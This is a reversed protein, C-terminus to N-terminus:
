HGSMSTLSHHLLICSPALTPGEHYIVDINPDDPCYVVRREVAHCLDMEREKRLVKKRYRDGM